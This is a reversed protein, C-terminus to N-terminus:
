QGTTEAPRISGLKLVLYKDKNFLWAAAGSSPIRNGWWRCYRNTPPLAFLRCVVLSM